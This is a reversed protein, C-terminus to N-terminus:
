GFTGFAWKQNFRKSSCPGPSRKGDKRTNSDGGPLAESSKSVKEIYGLTKLM